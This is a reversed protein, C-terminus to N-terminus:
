LARTSWLVGILKVPSRPLPTGPQGIAEWRACAVYWASRFSMSHLTRWHVSSSAWHYLNAAFLVFPSYRDFAPLCLNKRSGNQFPGFGRASATRRTARIPPLRTFPASQPPEAPAPQKPDGESRPSRCESTPWGAVGTGSRPFQRRDGARFVHSCGLCRYTALKTVYSLLMRLGGPPVFVSKESGCKPCQKTVPPAIPM